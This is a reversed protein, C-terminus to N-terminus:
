KNNDPHEALLKECTSEMNCVADRLLTLNMVSPSLYFIRTLIDVQKLHALLDM